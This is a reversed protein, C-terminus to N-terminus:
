AGPMLRFRDLSLEEVDQALRPTSGASGDVVSLQLIEGLGLPSQVHTTRHVGEEKGRPVM